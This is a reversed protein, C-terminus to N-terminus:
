LPRVAAHDHFAYSSGQRKFPQPAAAKSAHESASAGLGRSFSMALGSTSAGLSALSALTTGKNGNGGGRSHSTEM